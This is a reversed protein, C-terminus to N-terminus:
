PKPLSAVNDGACIIHCHKWILIHHLALGSLEVPFCINILSSINNKYSPTRFTSKGTASSDKIPKRMAMLDRIIARVVKTSVMATVLHKSM